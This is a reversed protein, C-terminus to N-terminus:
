ERKWPVTKIETVKGDTFVIATMLETEYNQMYIWTEYAHGNEQKAEYREARHRMITLVEDKSQGLQVKPLLPANFQARGCDEPSTHHGHCPTIEGTDKLQGSACGTLSLIPVIALGLWLLRCLTRTMVAGTM